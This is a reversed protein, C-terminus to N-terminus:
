GSKVEEPLIGGGLPNAKFHQEIWPKHMELRLEEAFSFLNRTLDDESSRRHTPPLGAPDPVVQGKLGAFGGVVEDIRADSLSGLKWDFYLDLVVRFVMADVRNGNLRVAMAKHVEADVTGNVSQWLGIMRDILEIAEDKEALARAKVEPTIPERVFLLRTGPLARIEAARQDPYMDLPFDLGIQGPIRPAERYPGCLHSDLYVLSALQSQGSTMLGQCMFMNISAKQSLRLIEVVAPAADAGYTQAAWDFMIAGPETEPDSAYRDLAYWHAMNWPHDWETRNIFAQVWYGSLRLRSIERFTRAWAEVMSCPFLNMGRYQGPLQIRPVYPACGSSPVRLHDYMPNAPWGPEQDWYLDSFMVVVNEPLRGTLDSFLEIEVRQGWPDDQHNNWLLLGGHGALLGGLFRLAEILRERRSLSGCRSCDCMWPAGNSMYYETTIGFSYGGLDPIERFDAGVAEQWYRRVQENFPCLLPSTRKLDRNRLPLWILEGTELETWQRCILLRIGRAKLYGAFSALAPRQEDTYYRLDLANIGISAIFDVFRGLESDATPNLMERSQLVTPEDTFLVDGDIQQWLTMVRWPLDHSSM